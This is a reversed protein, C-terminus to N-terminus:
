GRRLPPTARSSRLPRIDEESTYGPLLAGDALRRVRYGEPVQAAIEFGDAWSDNFQTHVEVPDGVNM